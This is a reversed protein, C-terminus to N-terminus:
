EITIQKQFSVPKIQLLNEPPIDTRQSTIKGSITYQGPDTDSLDMSFRRTITTYVSSTTRTTFVTEDSNDTVQLSISGIFPANGTKKMSVTIYGTNNEQIFDVSAIEVGTQANQTYYHAGIVQNVVVNVQAGIEGDEVEQIPPSVPNSQIRVRTWYGGEQLNSPPRVVFRVTQRQQPEITFNKPFIKIWDSISKKKALTSDNVVTLGGNRSVFYGFEPSISIEQANDGSNSITLSTFRQQNDFYLSTPSINVQAFSLSCIALLLFLLITARRLDLSKIKYM